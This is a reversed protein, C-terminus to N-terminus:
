TTCLLTLTASYLTCFSEYCHHRSGSCRLLTHICILYDSLIRDLSSCPDTPRCPHQTGPTWHYTTPQLTTKRAELLTVCNRHTQEGLSLTQETFWISRIFLSNDDYIYIHTHIHIYICVCVCMYIYIIIINRCNHYYIPYIFM